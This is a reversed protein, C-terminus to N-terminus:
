KVYIEYLFIRADEGAPTEDACVRLEIDDTTTSGINKYFYPLNSNTCCATEVNGCQQGDWLKDNTYYDYHSSTPNGSECYYDNGVFSPPRYVSGGCACDIRQTGRNEGLSGIFTWIHQRPTGRTISVGDVYVGNIDQTHGAVGDMHQFQYAHVRGCVESYGGLSAINISQCGAANRACTRKGNRENLTFGSPCQSSSDTMDLYGLRTWGDNSGCLTDFSCYVNKTDGNVMIDYYGSPSSPNAAKIAECSQPPPTNSDICSDLKEELTQIKDDLTKVQDSLKDIADLIAQSGKCVCQISNFLSFIVIVKLVFKLVM